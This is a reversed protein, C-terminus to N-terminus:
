TRRKVKAKVEITSQKELIHKIEHIRKSVIRSIQAQTVSFMTSLEKQKYRKGDYFGFYLKVIEKDRDPLKEVLNRIKKYVVQDEIDKVLDIEDALTDKLKIESGKDNEYITRELSDIIQDKKLKRLFILIENDICKMAYTSFEIKKSIDYTDVAKILGMIGISVLEKKDYDVTKFKNLIEYVILRINHIILIDKDEKRRRKLLEYTTEKSLPQPLSCVFWDEIM